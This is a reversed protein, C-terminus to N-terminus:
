ARVWCQAPLEFLDLLGIALDNTDVDYTDQHGKCGELPLRFPIASWLAGANCDQKNAPRKKLDVFLLGQLNLVETDPEAVVRPRTGVVHVLLETRKRAGLGGLRQVLVHGSTVTRTEGRDVNELDGLNLLTLIDLTRVDLLEHSRTELERQRVTARTVNTGKGTLAGVGEVLDKEERKAIANSANARAQAQM